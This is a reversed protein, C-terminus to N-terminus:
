SLVKNDSDGLHISLWEKERMRHVTVYKLRLKAVNALSTSSSRVSDQLSLTLISEWSPHARGLQPSLCWPRKVKIGPSCFLTESDKLSPQSLSGPLVRFMWNSQIRDCPSFAMIHDKLVHEVAVRSSSHSCTWCSCLYRCASSGVPHPLLSRLNTSTLLM